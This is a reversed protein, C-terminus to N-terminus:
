IFCASGPVLFTADFCPSLGERVTQIRKTFIAAVEPTPHVPGVLVAGIVRDPKMGAVTTPVMGGMSYGVLVAKDIKLYDMLGLVDQAIAPISTDPYLESLYKSRGAAYNDFTICRAFNTFYGLIPQYFNQTSGLGHVFIITLPAAQSASPTSQDHRPHDTYHLTKGEVKAFPM